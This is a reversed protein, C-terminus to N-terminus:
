LKVVGASTASPELYIKLDVLDNGVVNKGPEAKDIYFFICDSHIVKDDGVYIFFGICECETPLKNSFGSGNRMEHSLKKIRTTGGSYYHVELRVNPPMKAVVSIYAKATRGLYDSYQELKSLITSM